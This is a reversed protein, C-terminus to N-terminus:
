CVILSILTYNNIQLYSLLYIFLYFLVQYCAGCGTGNRYLRSVGAVNGDNVTRGFEGFGCAGGIVRVYVHMHM